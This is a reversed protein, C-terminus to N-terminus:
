QVCLMVCVCVYVCMCVGEGRSHTQRPKRVTPLDTTLLYHHALSSKTYLIVYVYIIPLVTHVYMHLVTHVYMHLVTHVYMYTCVYTICYTDCVLSVSVYVYQIYFCVCRCLGVAHETFTNYLYQVCHHKPSSQIVFVM